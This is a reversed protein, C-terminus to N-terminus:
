KKQLTIKKNNKLNLYKKNLTEVIELIDLNTFEFILDNFDKEFDVHNLVFIHNIVILDYIQELYKEVVSILYDKYDKEDPFNKMREILIQDYTDAHQQTSYKELAYENSWGTHIMEVFGNVDVIKCFLIGIKELYNIFEISLNGKQISYYIDNYLGLYHLRFFDMNEEYTMGLDDITELDVKNNKLEPFKHEYNEYLFKFVDFSGSDIVLGIDDSYLNDYGLDMLYQLINISRYFVAAIFITDVYKMYDIYKPDTINQMFKSIDDNFYLKKKIKELNLSDDGSINYNFYKMFEFLKPEDLIVAETRLYFIMTDDLKENGDL